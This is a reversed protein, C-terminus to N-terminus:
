TFYKHQAQHAWPVILSATAHRYKSICHDVDVFLEYSQMVHYLQPLVLEFHVAGEPTKEIVTQRKVSLMNPLNVTLKREGVNYVDVNLITQSDAPIVRFVVHTLDSNNRMLEHLNIRLTRRKHFASPSIESLHTLHHFEDSSCDVHAHSSGLDPEYWVRINNNPIHAGCAYVWDVTEMNVAVVTLAEHQPQDLLRVMYFRPVFSCCPEVITFQRGFPEIWEGDNRINAKLAYNDHLHSHIGNHQLQLKLKLLMQPIQRLERPGFSSSLNVNSVAPGDLDAENESRCHRFSSQKAGHYNTQVVLYMLSRVCGV